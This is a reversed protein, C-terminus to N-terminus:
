LGIQSTDEAAGLRVHVMAPVLARLGPLRGLTPMLAAPFGRFRRYPLVRVDRLTPLWARLATPAIGWPMAPARYHPTRWLGRASTTKRSFWGPITDFM